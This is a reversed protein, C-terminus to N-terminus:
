ASLPGIGQANSVPVDPGGVDVLRNGASVSAVRPTFSQLEPESFLGYSIIIM